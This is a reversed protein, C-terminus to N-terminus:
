APPNTRATRENRPTRASSPAATAQSSSLPRSSRNMAAANRSSGPSRTRHSRINNSRKTIMLTNIHQRPSSNTTELRTHHGNPPTQHIGQCASGIFSAHPLSIGRPAALLAEIRPNGFPAVRRTEYGPVAQLPPFAPFHFMETGAPLSMGPTTALSVPPHSFRQRTISEPPQALPTTPFGTWPGPGKAATLFFRALPVPNSAPGYLAIAGYGYARNRGIAEGLYRPVRPIGRSDARVTPCAQISCRSRYRVLVTLSLHFAGRSPLSVTGSVM